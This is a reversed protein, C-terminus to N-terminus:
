VVAGGGPCSVTGPRDRRRIATKEGSLGYLVSPGCHLSSCTRSFAAPWPSTIGGHQMWLARAQCSPHMSVAARVRARRPASSPSSAYTQMISPKTKGMALARKSRSPGSFAAPHVIKAAKRIGAGGFGGAM